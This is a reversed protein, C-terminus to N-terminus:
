PRRKRAWYLAQNSILDPGYVELEEFKTTYERYTMMMRLTYKHHYFDGVDRLAEQYRFEQVERVLASIPKLSAKVGEIKGFVGKSALTLNEKLRM